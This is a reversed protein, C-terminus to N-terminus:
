FDREVREKRQTNMVSYRKNVIDYVIWEKNPNNIKSLLKELINM